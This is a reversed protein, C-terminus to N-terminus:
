LNNLDGIWQQETIWLGRKDAAFVSDFHLSLSGIPGLRNTQIRNSIDVIKVEAVSFRLFPIIESEINM